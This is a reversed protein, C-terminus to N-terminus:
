PAEGICGANLHLESVMNWAVRDLTGAELDGTRILRRLNRRTEVSERMMMGGTPDLKTLSPDWPNTVIRAMRGISEQHYAEIREGALPWRANREAMAMLRYWRELRYSALQGGFLVRNTNFTFVTPELVSELLARNHDSVDRVRFEVQHWWQRELLGDARLEWYLHGVNEPLRTLLLKRPVFYGHAVTDAAMHGLYGLAFARQGDSRAMSLLAHAAQWSHGHAENVAYKKGVLVDAWVSGQYFDRRHRRLFHLTAPGLGVVGGLLTGSLFIHTAPGWALADSPM